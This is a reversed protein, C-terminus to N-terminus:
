KNVVLILGKGADIVENSLKKDLKTIGSEADIVLFIIDCNIIGDRTRLSAFYNLSTTIRNQPRSGARDLLEFDRNRESTDRKPLKIVVAEQTTGPIDNVIMRQEKLLANVLSSKGVNPRGIFALQIPNYTM